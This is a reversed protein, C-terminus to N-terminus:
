EGLLSVALNYAEDKSLKGEMLLEDLIALLWAM